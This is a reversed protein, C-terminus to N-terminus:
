RVRMKGFRGVGLLQQIERTEQTSAGPWPMLPTATAAGKTAVLRAAMKRIAQASAAPIPKNDATAALAPSYHRCWDVAAALALGMEARYADTVNTVDAAALCDDVTPWPVGRPM